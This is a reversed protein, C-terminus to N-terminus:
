KQRELSNRSGMLHVKWFEWQIAQEMEKVTLAVTSMKGMM